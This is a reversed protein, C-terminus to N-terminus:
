AAEIRDAFMMASGEETVVPEGIEWVRLSADQTKRLYSAHYIVARGAKLYLLAKNLVNDFHECLSKSCLIGWEAHCEHHSAAVHAFLAASRALCADHCRGIKCSCESAACAYSM